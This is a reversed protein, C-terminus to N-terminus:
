ILNEYKILIRAYEKALLEKNEFWKDVDGCNSIFCIEVLSRIGEGRMFGLKGRHSQSETKVGRDKLGLIKVTADNIEKAFDKSNTSAVDSILTEVGTASSNNSANFHLELLVSGDGPKIRSLYQGLTEQDKDTIVKNGSLHPLILDRQIITLASEKVGGRCKSVAGPDPKLGQNHGSSIYIAM